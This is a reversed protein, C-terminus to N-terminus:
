GQGQQAKFFKCLARHSTRSGKSGWHEVQCARSCYYGRLCGSCRSGRSGVLKAESQEAMNLCQPNACCNQLPLLAGVVMGYQQLQEMIDTTFLNQADCTSSGHGGTSSDANSGAHTGDGGTSSGAHWAPTGDVGTSSGASTGDGASSYNSNNSGNEGLAQEMCQVLRRQLKSQRELLWLLAAHRTGGTGASAVELRAEKGAAAAAAAAVAATTNGLVSTALAAGM